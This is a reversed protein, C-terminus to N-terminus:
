KNTLYVGGLIIGLGGLQVLTVTENAILGWLIAVLPVAYTVMSAFLGGARKILIYFFATAFASGVIGLLAAAAISWRAAADYVAIDYVEQQWLIAAAPLSIFALSVTAMKLPDIGKLYISVVNVNLGYCVTALLILSAYSFNDTSIGGKSLSLILLGIFGIIVGWIKRAKMQAGFFLIAIVLVFLPTLSNLIGALASDIKKEIAIAFLFAPLFNGLLGSVVVLPLKRVPIRTLHFLALPLFVLGASFIRLAGIQYGNLHQKGVKMLIFSSGWIFALLIFLGWNIWKDRSM